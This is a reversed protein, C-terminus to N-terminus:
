RINEEDDRPIPIVMFTMLMVMLGAIFFTADGWMNFVAGLLGMGEATAWAILVLTFKKQVPLNGELKRRVFMIVLAVVAILALFLLNIYQRVDAELVVGEAGAPNNNFLYWIGAGALLVTIFMAIRIVPLLKSLPSQNSNM